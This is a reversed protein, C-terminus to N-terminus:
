RPTPQLHDNPAAAELIFDSKTLYNTWEQTFNKTVVIYGTVDFHLPMDKHITVFGRLPAMDQFASAGHNPFGSMNADAAESLINVLWDYPVKNVAVIGSNRVDFHFAVVQEGPKLRNPFSLVFNQSEARTSHLGACGVAFVPVLVLTAVCIQMAGLRFIISLAIRRSLPINVNNEPLKAKINSLWIDPRFCHVRVFYALVWPSALAPDGM